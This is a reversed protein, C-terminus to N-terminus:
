RATYKTILNRPIYPSWNGRYNGIHTAWDGRTPFSWVTFEEPHYDKPPGFSTIRWPHGVQVQTDEITVHKNKSVFKRYDEETVLTM